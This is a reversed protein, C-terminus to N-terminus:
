IQNWAVAPPSPSSCLSHQWFCGPKRHQIKLLPKQGRKRWISRSSRNDAARCSAALAFSTKLLILHFELKHDNIIRQFKMHNQKDITRKIRQKRIRLKQDRLFHALCLPSSGVPLFILMLNNNNNNNSSLYCSLWTSKEPPDYLSAAVPLSPQEVVAQAGARCAQWGPKGFTKIRISYTETCHTIYM